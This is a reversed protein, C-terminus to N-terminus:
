YKRFTKQFSTKTHTPTGTKDLPLFQGNDLQVIQGNKFKLEVPVCAAAYFYLIAENTEENILANQGTVNSSYYRFTEGTLKNKFTRQTPQM